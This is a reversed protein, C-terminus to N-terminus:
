RLRMDSPLSEISLASQFRQLFEVVVLGSPEVEVGVDEEDVVEDWPEDLNVADDDVVEVAELEVALVLEVLEPEDLELEVAGDEEADAVASM